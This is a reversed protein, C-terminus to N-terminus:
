YAAEGVPQFSDMNSCGSQPEATRPFPELLNKFYLFQIYSKVTHKLFPDKTPWQYM